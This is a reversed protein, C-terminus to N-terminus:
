KSSLATKKISFYDQELSKVLDQQYKIDGNIDGLDKDKLDLRLAASYLALVNRASAIKLLLGLPARETWLQLNYMGLSVDTLKDFWKEYLYCTNCRSSLRSLRLELEAQLVEFEELYFVQHETFLEATLDLDIQYQESIGLYNYDELKSMQKGYRSEIKNVLDQTKADFTASTEFYPRYKCIKHLVYGAVALGGAGFLLKKRGSVGSYIDTNLSLALFALILFQYKKLM